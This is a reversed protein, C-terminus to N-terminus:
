IYTRRIKAAKDPSEFGESSYLSLYILKKDMPKNRKIELRLFASNKNNSSNKGKEQYKAFCKHLHRFYAQHKGNFLLHINCPNFQSSHSCDKKGGMMESGHNKDSLGDPM